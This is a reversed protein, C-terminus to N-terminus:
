SNARGPGCTLPAERDDRFTPRSATSAVACYVFPALRPRRFRTTRIGRRQCRRCQHKPMLTSLPSLFARDGPLARWLGNFGKAHPFAPNDPPSTTSKSTHKESKCVLSRTREAGPMGWARKRASPKPDVRTRHTGRSPHEQTWGELRMASAISRLILDSHAVAFVRMTLLRAAADRVMLGSRRHGNNSMQILARRRAILEGGGAM